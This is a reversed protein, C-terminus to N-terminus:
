PLKFPIDGTILRNTLYHPDFRGGDDMRDPGISYFFVPDPKPLRLYAFNQGSYPDVSLKTLYGPVLAELTEPYQGDHDLKWAVLAIGLELARQNVLEEDLRWLWSDFSPLVHMALKTGRLQSWIQNSFEIAPSRAWPELSANAKEQAEVMRCLRRARLREWPPAVIRAYFLVDLSSRATKGHPLMYLALETGSLNLTEEVQVSEVEISAVLNPPAPLAKLDALAQRLTERTQRPDRLWDFALLVARHHM